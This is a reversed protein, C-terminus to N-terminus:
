SQPLRRIAIKGDWQQGGALRITFYQAKYGVKRVRAIQLGPPLGDMVFRGTRDSQTQFETGMILVEAEPVVKEPSWGDDKGIPMFEIFRM